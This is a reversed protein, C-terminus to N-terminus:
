LCSLGPLLTGARMRFTTRIRSEATRGARGEACAYLGAHGSWDEAERPDRSMGRYTASGSLGALILGHSPPM